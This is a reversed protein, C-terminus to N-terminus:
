AVDHMLFNFHIFRFIDLLGFTKCQIELIVIRIENFTRHCVAGGILSSSTDMKEKIIM